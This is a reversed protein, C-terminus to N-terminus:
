SLYICGGINDKQSGTITSLVNIEKRARLLGLFAFCLAEKFEVLESEIEKIRLGHTSLRSLLYQNHYGGGSIFIEEDLNPISKAIQLAIHETFTCLANKPEISFRELIPLTKEETFERGLSKPQAEEYFKMANLQDLLEDNVTGSRAIEGNHDFDINFHQKALHNLVQNAPCIDFGLVEGNKQHISLNAIGGINLFCSSEPFLYKEATPVLPAGQGQLAIDVSRFDSISAIGSVAAIVAGSGLQFSINKKPQHFITHGHSAIFDAHLKNAQLFDKVTNGIFKGYERDLLALDLGSLYPANKLKSKWEESYEKTEASVIQYKWQENSQWFEAHCLDIGDLSTGSM